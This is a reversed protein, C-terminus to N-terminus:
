QDVIGDLHRSRGDEDFRPNGFGDVSAGHCRQCETIPWEAQHDADIPPIGHCSGCYVKEPGDDLGLDSGVGHCYTNRCRRDAYEPQAGRAEGLGGFGRPFVEGPPLSDLHGPATLTAPYLHCAECGIPGRLRRKPAAHLEHHHGTEQHCAHCTGSGDGLDVKGDLHRSPDILGEQNAVRPHCDQCRDSTHSAPPDGHCRGCNREVQATWALPSLSANADAVGHCTINSCQGTAVEFRAPASATATAIAALVVEVPGQDLVGGTQFHGPAYVTAPKVHCTDCDYRLGLQGGEVHARHAGQDLLKEHCTSCDLVGEQHCRVCSAGSAGGALDRGHCERCRTVDYVQAALLNAHFDPSLPDQIGPEHVRSCFVSDSAVCPPDAPPTREEVCAVVSALM